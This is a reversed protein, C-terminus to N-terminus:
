PDVHRVRGRGERGPPGIDSFPTGSRCISPMRLLKTPTSTRCPTSRSRFAPSTWAITPSFPAPLDVSIFVRAPTCAGSSPVILISPSSTEKVCGAAPAPRRRDPDDILLEVQQRVAVHGLVHEDAALRELVPDDVALRHLTLRGRQELLDALRAEARARRHAPERDGLLLHDLDDLGARQVRADEHEVLRGRRQGIVLDLNQELEDAPELLEADADEVDRVAQALHECSDSRMVTM